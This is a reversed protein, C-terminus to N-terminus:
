KGCRRIKPAQSPAVEGSLSEVDVDGFSNTATVLLLSQSITTVRRRHGAPAPEAPRSGSALNLNLSGPNVQTQLYAVYAGAEM